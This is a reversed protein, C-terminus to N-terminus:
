ILKRATLVMIDKETAERWKKDNNDKYEVILVTEQPKKQYKFNGTLDTTDDSRIEHIKKRMIHVSDIKNNRKDIKTAWLYLFFYIFILIVATQFDSM